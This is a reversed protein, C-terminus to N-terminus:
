STRARRSGATPWRASRASPSRPAPSPPWWPVSPWRAPWRTAARCTAGWCCSWRASPACRPVVLARVGRLADATHPRPAHCAALGYCLFALGWGVDLPGGIVYAGHAVQHAYVTDTVVFLATGATLWWWAAGAGRGIVALAGAILVLLLLDAVPYAVVLVAGRLALDLYAGFAFAAAFAAATLGTVVADLWM